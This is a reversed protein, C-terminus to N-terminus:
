TVPTALVPAFSVLVGTGVDSGESTYRLMVFPCAALPVMNVPYTSISVNRSLAVNCCVQPCLM